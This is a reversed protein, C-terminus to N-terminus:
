PQKVPFDPSETRSDRLLTEIRAVVDPHDAAVNHVEGIDREVDYLELPGEKSLRIGKWNGLRVAQQFRREHFEWYLTREPLAERPDLFVKVLSLGDLSGHTPVGSLEAATPLFDAFWGVAQCVRGPAIHGPWRAIFPVRIGGDTLSRKHGRVPGSSGFFAPNAGGEAHPGNDSAFIVLTNEDLHLDKIKKLVRGVDRDLRTIMAAHNKQPAPWSEGSYPADDPVEMGNGEAHGRENNAHPLTYALYLFFPGAKHRELFRLAEDTFLDPAYQRRISSVNGIPSIINDLPERTENRWLYDPYYNHAHHQNLFGFFEDFGQRNPIGPTQPDGLGWKGVLGTTYGASKLIEAVTVDEPRLPVASNGRVTCHGTHRGTMLVCRSPACVTSGAYFQTFRIGEGAMRDIQPTRIRKQGYCGLDGYGLDDALIFVINPPQRGPDAAQVRVAPHVVALVIALLLAPRRIRQRIEFM